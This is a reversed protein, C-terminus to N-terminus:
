VSKKKLELIEKLLLSYLFPYTSIVDAFLVYV